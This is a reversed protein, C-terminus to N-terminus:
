VQSGIDPSDDPVPAVTVASGAVVAVYTTVPVSIFPHVFVDLAVTVTLGSGTIVMSGAAGAIQKPCDTDRVALPPM